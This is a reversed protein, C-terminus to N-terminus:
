PNAARMLHEILESLTADPAIDEPEIAIGFRDEIEFAISVIDLSDIDLEALTAEPKLEGIEIDTEAAIVALIADATIAM